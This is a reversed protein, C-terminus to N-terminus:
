DRTRRSRRLNDFYILSLRRSPLGGCVLGDMDFNGLQSKSAGAQSWGNRWLALLDNSSLTGNRGSAAQIYHRFTVDVCAGPPSKYIYTSAPNLPHHQRVVFYAATVFSMELLVVSTRLLIALIVSMSATISQSSRLNRSRHRM